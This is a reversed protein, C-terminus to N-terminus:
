KAIFKHFTIYEKSEVSIVYLGPKLSNDLKINYSGSYPKNLILAGNVDFIKIKYELFRNNTRIHIFRSDTQILCDSVNTKIAIIKSKSVKGNFDVQKLKYYYFKNEIIEYDIYSYEISANSNGAGPLNFIKNFKIGDISKLLEFYDNNTETLTVWKIRIENEMYNGVFSALEIPLNAVKLELEVTDKEIGPGEIEIFFNGCNLLEFTVINCDDVNRYGTTTTTTGVGGENPLDFFFREENCAFFAQLTWLNNPKDGGIFEVNYDLEIKYSYGSQCSTPTIIDNLELSVIVSYGDSSNIVQQSTGYFSLLTLFLTLFFKAKM